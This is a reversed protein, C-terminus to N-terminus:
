FLKLVYDLAEGAPIQIDPTVGGSTEDACPLVFKKFSIDVDIKSNPLNVTIIDGYTIKQGGTEEGVIKGLKYCKFANAFLVASSFTYNSTLLYVNGDYKSSVSAPTKEKFDVRYIKGPKGLTARGVKTLKFFPLAPYVFWKFYTKYFYRKQTKSSKVEMYDVQKYPRSTLHVILADGLRSDGGSNQRVDIILKTVQHQDFAHFAKALFIKFAGLDSMDNFTLLGTSENLINFYYKQDSVQSSNVFEINLIGRLTYEGSSTAIKFEEVEGILFWILKKFRRSIIENRFIDSEASTVDKMKKLLDGMKQGNVGLIQVGAEIVGSNDQVVMVRDDETVKVQIPFLKGGATIYKKYAETPIQVETHGDRLLTYLPIIRQSFDIVTLSAPFRNSVSDVKRKFEDSSILSFPNPHVEVLRDVLIGVDETMEAKTLVQASINISFFTGILWWGM